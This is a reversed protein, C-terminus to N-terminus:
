RLLAPAARGTGLGARVTCAAALLCVGALASFAVVDGAGEALRGTGAGGVANGIAWAANMLSFGFAPDVQRAETGDALLALAPAWLAGVTPGLACVLAAVLLPATPHPLLALLPAAALLGVRM